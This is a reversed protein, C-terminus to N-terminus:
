HETLAEQDLGIKKVKDLLESSTYYYVAKGECISYLSVLVEEGGEYILVMDSNGGAALPDGKEFETREFLIEMIEEIQVEDTIDYEGIYADSYNVHIKVPNRQLDSYKEFDTIKLSDNENRGCSMLFLLLVLITVKQYGGIRKM